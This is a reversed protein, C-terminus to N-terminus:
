ASDAGPFQDGWLVHGPESLARHGPSLLKEPWATRPCSHTRSVGEMEAVYEPTSNVWSLNVKAEHLAKTMSQRMRRLFEREEEEGNMVLPWRRGADPLSLVRRQWGAGTPWGWDGAQPNSQRAALAHGTREWERPIESLVDLRAQVDESRKSDHTSTELM